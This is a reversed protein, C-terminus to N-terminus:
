STRFYSHLSYPLTISVKLTFLSTHLIIMLVIKITRQIKSHPLAESSHSVTIRGEELCISKMKLSPPNPHPPWHKNYATIDHRTNFSLNSRSRQGFVSSDAMVPQPCSHSGVLDCQLYRWTFWCVSQKCTFHLHEM